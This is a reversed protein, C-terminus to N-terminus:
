TKPASFVRRVTGDRDIDVFISEDENAWRQGSGRRDDAAVYHLVGLPALSPTQAEYDSMENFAYENFYDDLKRGGLLSFLYKLNFKSLDAM